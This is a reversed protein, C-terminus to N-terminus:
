AEKFFRILERAHLLFQSDETLQAVLQESARRNQALEEETNAKLTAFRQRMETLEQQNQYIFSDTNEGDFQPTLEKLRNEVITLRERLEVVDERPYYLQDQILGLRTAIYEYARLGPRMVTFLLTAAASIYGIASIGSAALGYLVASSILHLGIAIILGWRSVKQAYQIQKKDVFIQRDKAMNAEVLVTKATFFINWPITVIALLWYFSAIGVFWDVFTGAPIHLWHLVVLVILTIFGVGGSFGASISISTTNM